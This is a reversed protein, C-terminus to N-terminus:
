LRLFLKGSDVNKSFCYTLSSMAPRDSLMCKSICKLFAPFPWKSIFYLFSKKYKSTTVGLDMCFTKRWVNKLQSSVTCISHLVCEARNQVTLPYYQGLGLNIESYKIDLLISSNTINRGLFITKIGSMRKWVAYFFSVKIAWCPSKPLLIPSNRIIRTSCDNSLWFSPPVHFLGIKCTIKNSRYWHVQSWSKVTIVTLM